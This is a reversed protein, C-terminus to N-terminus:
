TDVISASVYPGLASANITDRLDGRDVARCLPALYDLKYKRLLAPSPFVGLVLRVPVLYRLILRKNKAAGRPCRDFAFQLEAAAKVVQPEVEEVGRVKDVEGVGETEVM